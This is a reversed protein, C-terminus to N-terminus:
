QYSHMICVITLGKQRFRENQRGLSTKPLTNWENPNLRTVMCFVMYMYRARRVLNTKRLNYKSVGVLPILVGTSHIRSHVKLTMAFDLSEWNRDQHHKSQHTKFAQSDPTFTVSKPVFDPSQVKKLRLPWIWFYSM